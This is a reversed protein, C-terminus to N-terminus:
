TGALQRKKESELIVRVIRMEDWTYDEPLLRRAPSLRDIGKKMFAKKILRFRDEPFDKKLHSVDIKRGGEIMEELHGIITGETLGRRIAVDAVNYHEEILARTKETTSIKKEEEGPLISDLFEKQTQEREPHAALEKGAEISSAILDKDLVLVKPHVRLATANLGMLKLGELSRVRSLAVYGMGEVFSSSLDIEAADLTMGQSKHITIAWALRLPLQTIEAKIKDDEEIRWGEQYVTIRKGSTLEVVPMGDDAFEVVIGLTGNVYGEDFNNKVFMVTADKKLFLEEPALCSKKLSECLKERGHTFMTFCKPEGPLGALQKENIADVKRNHTYLKTPTVVSEIERRYRERLPELTDESVTNARIDKLVSFLEGVEQRFQEHLYCIKLEMEQWAKSENIFAVEDKRQGVPPLQFFDGCLIVQMGGFSMDNGKAMRCVKEVLDLYYPHLMSVEDIVLVKAKALRKMLPTREALKRMDKGRLEEAIGVGSWSHITMGNMHTAAIGTSATIGVAVGHSKLHRIYENLLFTKGSGASGTIYANHGLKLIHLAEEQTM